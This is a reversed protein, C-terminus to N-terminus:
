RAVGPEASALLADVADDWTPLGRRGKFAGIREVLERRLCLWASGPYHEDVLGRLVRVPIGTRAESTWPIPAVALAGEDDRYFVTGSFQLVVPVVGSELAFLYRAAAICLDASCPVELSAATTGAFSPVVTSVHTWLMTRLTRGWRSPEGFLDLLAEREGESYPRRRAELQIQCRLVIADILAGTAEGVRLGFALTPTVSHPLPEVSDVEITLEPM